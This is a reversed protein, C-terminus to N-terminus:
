AMEGLRRAAELPQEPSERGVPGPSQVETERLYEVLTSWEHYQYGPVSLLLVRLDLRGM